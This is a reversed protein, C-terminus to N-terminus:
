SKRKRSAKAPKETSQATSQAEPEPAPEDTIFTLQETPVVKTEFLHNKILTQAGKSPNYGRDGIHATRLVEVFHNGLKAKTNM